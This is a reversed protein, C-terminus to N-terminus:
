TREFLFSMNQRQFFTRKRLAEEAVLRFGKNLVAEIFERYNVVHVYVQVGYHQQVEVVSKRAHNMGLRHICLYRRCARSLESLGVRYDKLHPITASSFVIDFEKDAFTLHRIDQFVFTAGAYRRSARELMGRNFDAGTYTLRLGPVLHPIVESYYGLGCAIDLFSYKVGTPILSLLDAAVQFERIPNGRYMEDIQPNSVQFQQDPIDQAQWSYDLNPLVKPSANRLQKYINRVRQLLYTM